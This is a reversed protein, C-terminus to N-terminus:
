ACCPSAIHVHFSLLISTFTHRTYLDLISAPPSYDLFPLRGDFQTFPPNASKPLRMGSVPSRYLVDLKTLVM